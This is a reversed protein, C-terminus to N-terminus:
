RSTDELRLFTEERLYMHKRLKSTNLITVSNWNLLSGLNPGPDNHDAIGIGAALANAFAPSFAAM